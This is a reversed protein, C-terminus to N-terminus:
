KEKSIKPKIETVPQFDKLNTQTLFEGDKVSNNLALNDKGSLNPKNVKQNRDVYITRTVIKEQVVPIKIIREKIVPVEVIKTEVKKEKEESDTKNTVVFESSKSKNEEVSKRDKEALNEQVNGVSMRGLQFAFGSFMALLLLAAAFALKPIGFWGIKEQKEETVVATAVANHSEFAEFVKADLSASASMPLTNKMAKSLSKLGEFESGCSECNALHSAINERESFGIEDDSFAELKERVQICKM